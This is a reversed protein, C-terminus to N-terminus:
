APKFVMLHVIIVVILAFVIWSLRALMASRRYAAAAPGVSGFLAIQRRLAALTLGIFLAGIGWLDMAAETWHADLLGALHGMWMGTALMLLYGPVVLYYLLRRIARLVFAGHTPDDTFFSLLMGLGASSGLAVIAILIHAFKFGLYDINPVGSPYLRDGGPPLV